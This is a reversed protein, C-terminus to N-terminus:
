IALALRVAGRAPDVLRGLPHFGALEMARLLRGRLSGGEEILGGVLAVPPPTGPGLRKALTRIHDVLAAIAREVLEEAVPDGADAIRVVTPALSAVGSKGANRSWSLLKGLSDTGTQAFLAETLATPPGRDEAARIGAQLGELGVRYGSGEDGLLAGWGGVRMLEGGRDGRALAVSGTGAILLIGSGEGFADVFAVEADTLVRTRRAVGWERLRDGPPLGGPARRLGPLRHHPGGGRGHNGGGHPHLPHRWGSWSSPGSSPSPGDRGSSGSDDGELGKAPAWFDYASASALANISSSLSSMAAAFVGAILLGTVGPPLEEIIFTAFIADPTDFERGEYFAWLGMGVMLFLAFQFIVVIGSGVLAKQSARLDRCTLLRQVLLQDTGHSAMSLFPGGLLGAWFTYTVAPHPLLGATSSGQRGPRELAAGWGGPVAAQLALLALAAGVLYIGMQLADVWVV